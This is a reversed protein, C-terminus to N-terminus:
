FDRLVMVSQDIQLTGAALRGLTKQLKALAAKDAEKMGEISHVDTEMLNEGQLITSREVKELITAFRAAKAKRLAAINALARIMTTAVMDRVSDTNSSLLYLTRSPAHDATRPVEQLQLFGATLLKYAFEKAEKFPIMVMDSIQKQELLKKAVVLRYIRCCQSGFREQVVSELVEKRLLGVAMETDIVYRGGGQEDVKKVFGGGQSSLLDLYYDLERNTLDKQSSGNTLPIKIRPFAVTKGTRRQAPSEKLETMKLMSKVVEGATPDVRRSAYDVIAENRLCVHMQDINGQWLVDSQKATVVESLLDLGEKEKQRKKKPAKEEQDGDERKRKRGDKSHQEIYTEAEPPVEYLAAEELLADKEQLDKAEAPPIVCMLMHARVMQVFEGAVRCKYENGGTEGAAMEVCQQFTLRGEKLLCQVIAQGEAGFRRKATLIYRPYRLVLFVRDPKAEYVTPGDGEVYSVLSHIVMATLSDQLEQRPLSTFTQLERFTLKGRQLLTTFAMESVDGFYEQLIYKALRTCQDM